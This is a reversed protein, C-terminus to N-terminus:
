ISFCRNSAVEDTQLLFGRESTFVTERVVPIVLRNITDDSFDAELLSDSHERFTGFTIVEGPGITENTDMYNSHMIKLRIDKVTKWVINKLGFFAFEPIFNNDAIVAEDETVDSNEHRYRLSNDSSNYYINKSILSTLPKGEKWDRVAFENKQGVKIFNDIVNEVTSSDTAMDQFNKFEDKYLDNPQLKIVANNTVHGYSIAPYNYRGETPNLPYGIPVLSPDFELYKQFDDWMENRFPVHEREYLAMWWKRFLDFQKLDQTFMSLGISHTYRSEGDDYSPPIEIFVDKLILPKDYPNWLSVSPLVALAVKNSNPKLVPCVGLRLKTMVPLLAHNKPEPRHARKSDDWSNFYYNSVNTRDFVKGPSKPLGEFIVSNDGIIRPFQDPITMDLTSPMERYFNHFDALVSWRPGALLTDDDEISSESGLKWVNRYKAEEYLPVNKKYIIRERFIFNDDFDNQIAFSKSEGPAFQAFAMSLDRKLGGTRLDSLVGFSHTTVSHYHNALFENM